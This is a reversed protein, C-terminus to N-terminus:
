QQMISMLQNHALRQAESLPNNKPIIVNRLLGELYATMIIQWDKASLRNFRAQSSPQDLLSHKVRVGAELGQVGHEIHLLFDEKDKIASALNKGWFVLLHERCYDFAEDETLLTEQSTKSLLPYFQATVISSITNIKRKATQPNPDIFSALTKTKEPLELDEITMYRIVQIVLRKYNTIETETDSAQYLLHLAEPLNDSSLSSLFFNKPGGRKSGLVDSFRDLVQQGRGMYLSYTVTAPNGVFRNPLLM